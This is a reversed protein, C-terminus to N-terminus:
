FMQLLRAGQETMALASGMGTLAIIHATTRLNEGGLINFMLLGIGVPLAMVMVIMNMVYVTLRATVNQHEARKRPETVDNMASSHSLELVDSDFIQRKIRRLRDEAPELEPLDEIASYQETVPDLPRTRRVRIGAIYRTEERM